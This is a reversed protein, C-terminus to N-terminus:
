LDLWQEPDLKETDKRIQFSMRTRKNDQPDSYILGLEQRASVKEGTKVDVEILGTYVTYYDGHRLMVAKTAGGFSFIYTVTGGFVARAKTGPTTEIDIGLNNKDLYKFEPHKHLGFHGVIRYRGTVPVPLRGKNKAFNGSLERDAQPMKYGAYANKDEKKKTPTTQASQEKDAKKNGEKKAAEAALRAAEAEAEARAREAAKRAEEAIIADIKRNLADIQSKQKKAEARLSKEKKKLKNVFSKKENQQNKLKNAEQTREAILGEREAVIKQLEEKKLKLEEQREVIEGAQRKRWASYEKLYRMRRYSQNLSQASFIFILEDYDTRRRSMNCVAKAYSAKKANLERQLLYISDNMMQQKRNMAKVERSLQNILKNRGKIEANILDLENLMSRASKLNKQIAENTERLQLEANEKNKRLDDVNQAVAMGAFLWLLLLFCQARQRIM